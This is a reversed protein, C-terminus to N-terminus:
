KPATSGNLYVTYDPDTSSISSPEARSVAEHLAAAVYATMRPDM